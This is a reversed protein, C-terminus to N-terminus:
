QRNSCLSRSEAEFPSARASSDGEDQFRSEDHRLRQDDDDAIFFASRALGSQGDMNGGTKQISAFLNGDNIQVQALARHFAEEGIARCPHGSVALVQGQGDHGIHTVALGEGTGALFLLEGTEFGGISHGLIDGFHDQDVSRAAVSRQRARRM